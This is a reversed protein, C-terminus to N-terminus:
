GSVEVCPPTSTDLFMQRFTEGDLGTAVEWFISEDVPYPTSNEADPAFLTLYIYGVVEPNFCVRVEENELREFPVIYTIMIGLSAYTLELRYYPSNEVPAFEIYTPMDYRNLLASASYSQWDRIFLSRVEEQNYNGSVGVWQIINYELNFQVTVHPFYRGDEGPYGFHTIVYTGDFSVTWDDIGQSAFLDRAVQASTQGPIVGWWCPLECGANGILLASLLEGEEVTSLTPVPTPTPTPTSTPPFKTKTPSSTATSTATLTPIVITTPTATVTAMPTVLEVSVSEAINTAEPVNEQALLCGALLLGVIMVVVWVRKATLM